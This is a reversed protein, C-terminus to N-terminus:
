FGVALSLTGEGALETQLKRDLDAISNVVLHPQYPYNSLDSLQTSGTLVLVAKFGLEVAGRIDTEMTDGVMVTESTSLGMRKRAARMMFPSPKGVSFAKIGSASELM